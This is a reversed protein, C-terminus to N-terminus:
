IRPSIPEYPIECIELYSEEGFPSEALEIEGHSTYVDFLENSEKLEKELELTRQNARSCEGNQGARFSVFIERIFKVAIACHVQEHRYLKEIYSRFEESSEPSITSKEIQPLTYTVRLSFDYIECTEDDTHINYKWATYGDFGMEKLFAPRSEDFSHEIEDSNDGVVKYIEFDKHFPFGLDTKAYTYSSLLLYLSVLVIKKM